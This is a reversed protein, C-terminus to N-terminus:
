AASRLSPSSRPSSLALRLLWVNQLSPGFALSIPYRGSTTGAGNAYVVSQLKPFVYERRHHLIQVWVNSM